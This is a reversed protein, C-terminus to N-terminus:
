SYSVDYSNTTFSMGGPSATIEFGFQVKEVSIDGIWGQSRIWQLCALIDVTGSNTNATRVLSIVNRGRSGGNYYADWTHGGVSVNSVRPIPNGNSDYQDARPGIPGQKNMWIMIEYSRGSWIDYTTTYSGATPVTVDFSSTLTNLGSIRTRINPLESNPYSKVGSTDPHDAV